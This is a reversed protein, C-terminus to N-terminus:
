FAKVAVKHIIFGLQIYEEVLTNLESGDFKFNGSINNLETVIGDRIKIEGAATVGFKGGFIEPHNFSEPLINIRGDPLRAYIYGGNDVTMFDYFSSTISEACVSNANHFSNVFNVTKSLITSTLSSLATQETNFYTSFQTLAGSYYDGAASTM